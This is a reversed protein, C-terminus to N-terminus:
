RISGHLSDPTGVAQQKAAVKVVQEICKVSTHEDYELSLNFLCRLWRALKTLDTGTQRATLNIIKHLVSLVESDKTLMPRPM